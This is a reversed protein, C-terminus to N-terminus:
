PEYAEEFDGRRSVMRCSRSAESWDNQRRRMVCIIRYACRGVDGIARPGNSGVKISAYSHRNKRSSPASLTVKAGLVGCASVDDVMDDAEDEEDEEEM